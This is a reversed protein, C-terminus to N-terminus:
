ITPDEEEMLDLTALKVKIGFLSKDIQDKRQQLAAQERELELRVFAPTAQSLRADMWEAIETLEKDNM